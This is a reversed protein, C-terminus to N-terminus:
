QDILIPILLVGAMLRRADVVTLDYACVPLTILM